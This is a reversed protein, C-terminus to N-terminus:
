RRMIGKKKDESNKDEERTQNDKNRTCSYEKGKKERREYEREEGTEM